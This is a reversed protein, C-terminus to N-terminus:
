IVEPAFWGLRDIVERCSQGSGFGSDIDEPTWVGDNNMWWSPNEKLHDEFRSKLKEASHVAVKRLQADIKIGGSFFGKWWIREIMEISAVVYERGESDFIKMKSFYGEKVSPLSANEFMDGWKRVPVLFEQHMVALPLNLERLRM